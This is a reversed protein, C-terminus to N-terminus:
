ERLDRVDGTRGAEIPEVLFFVINQRDIGEPARRLVQSWSDVFLRPVEGQNVIYVDGPENVVAAASEAAPAPSLRLGVYLRRGREAQLRALIAADGVDITFSLGDNKLLARGAAPSQRRLGEVGRAICLELNSVIASASSLRTGGLRAFALPLDNLNLEERRYSVTELPQLQLERLDGSLQAPRISQETTYFRSGAVVFNLRRGDVFAAERAYLPQTTETSVSRSLRTWEQRDAYRQNLLSFFLTKVGRGRLRRLRSEMGPNRRGGLSADSFVLLRTDGRWDRYREVISLANDLGRVTTEGRAGKQGLVRLLPTWQESFPLIDTQDGSELAVAGLRSGQPLQPGIAALAAHIAPLDYVMSGSYDIIAALDIRESGLGGHQEPHAAPPAWGRMAQDLLSGLGRQLRQVSTLQAGRAEIRASRCGFVSARLMVQNQDVARVSGALLYGAGSEACVSRAVRDTFPTQPQFSAARLARTAAEVSLVPYDSRLSFLFRTAAAFEGPLDPLDLGARVTDGEVLFPLALM